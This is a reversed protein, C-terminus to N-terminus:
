TVTPTLLHRYAVTCFHCRGHKHEVKDAPARPSGGFFDDLLRAILALYAFPYAYLIQALVLPHGGMPKAPYSWAQLALRSLCTRM